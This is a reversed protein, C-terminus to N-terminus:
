SKLTNLLQQLDSSQPDDPNSKLYEDLWGAAPETLGIRAYVLALDRQLRLTQPYLFAEIELMAAVHNYQGEAGCKNLLNQLVRTLWHNHCVPELFEDSWELEDGFTKEAMAKAEDVTLERGQNYPDVIIRVDNVV